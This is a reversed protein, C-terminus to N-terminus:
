YAVDCLKKKDMLKITETRTRMNGKFIHSMIMKKERHYSFYREFRLRILGVQEHRTFGMTNNFCTKYTKKSEYNVLLLLSLCFMVSFVM